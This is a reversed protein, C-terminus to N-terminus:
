TRTKTTIVPSSVITSIRTLAGVPGSFARHASSDMSCQAQLHGRRPVAGDLGVPHGGAGHLFRLGWYKNYNIILLEIKLDYVIIRLPQVFFNGLACGYKINEGTSNINNGMIMIM